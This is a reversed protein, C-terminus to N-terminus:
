PIDNRYKTLEFWRDRLMKAYILPDLGYNGISWFDNCEIVSTVIGENYSKHTQLAVDLSYAIPASKYEEIMMLIHDFNPFISFDGQYHKIGVIEGKNVFCRYESQMEVVEGIYVLEENSIDILSNLSSVKIIGSSFQKVKSVPKIFIKENPLIKAEGFTMNKGLRYRFKKLEEPINLPKPYKIKHLDFYDRTGEVYAVVINDPAYPISNIDDFYIIKAGLQKFGMDAAFLWDDQFGSKDPKYIYVKM